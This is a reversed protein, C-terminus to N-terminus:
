LTRGILAEIEAKALVYEFRARVAEAEAADLQEQARSLVDITLSGIRYREMQVRVLARAADLNALATTVRVEAARLAALQTTLTAGVERRADAAQASATEHDSRRSTIQQERQFRNFLPYSLGLAVSRSNYLQYENFRSGAFSTNATLNLSPLYLSKAASLSAAAADEAAETRLVQPAQRVAEARLANTDAVEAAGFLSSDIVATVRGDEGILRALAAESAALQREESALRLRAENLTVTATLSDAVNAARTALRAVAIQFQEEARRIAERRVAVLQTTQAAEIFARTTRLRNQARQYDVTADAQARSARAANLDRGRRFGTFLDYSANAGLNLSANSTGGPLVEGTTPDLRAPGDSFSTGWSATARIDPLFQGYATRVAASSNRYAGLAQVVQPDVLAARDLAERLTLSRQQAAASGTLAGLLVGALWLQRPAM